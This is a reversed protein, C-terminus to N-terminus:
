SNILSKELGFHVSFKKDFDPYDHGDERYKWSYRRNKNQEDIFWVNGIIGFDYALRIFESIDTFETMNNINANFTEKIESLWFERKNHIKILNFTQTIKEPSFYSSMENRLENQLKESYLLRTSTFTKPGFRQRNPQEAIITNLMSIVDRPRGFTAHLIYNVIPTNNIHTPFFSELIQKKPINHLQPNSKKIKMIILDLLPHIEESQTKKLWNLRIECDSIRKNLNADSNNLVQIIDSRLLLIVRSDKCKRTQIESNIRYSTTILDALFDIFSVNGTIISDYEDLDDFIINVQIFEMLNLVSKELAEIQAYYPNIIYENNRAKKSFFAAVGVSKKAGSGSTYSSSTETSTSYNSLYFNDSTHRNHIISKLYKIDKRYKFMRKFLPIKKLNDYILKAFELYITYKILFQREKKHTETNGKEILERLVLDEDTLMTTPCNNKKCEHEFYKALITKGTGKKGSIIFINKNNVLQSYKNNGTYFINEFRKDTSEKLGDANGVYIDKLRISVPITNQATNM